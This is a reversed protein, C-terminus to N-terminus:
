LNAARRARFPTIMLAGATGALALVTMALYGYAGVADYLVGSLTTALGVFLGWALASSLTQASSAHQPPSLREILQLSGVFTAAFTLAHLGNIVFILWVPPSFALCTWRVVAAVGGLVLLRVPGVRRRWPEMFWLFGVEVATGVGWLPGFLAPDVGQRAWSLNSFAYFFAHSAQILGASVVALMFVPDRLLDRAGALGDRAAVKEGDEHVPDPPLLLQAFIAVLLAAGIAWVLIVTKPMVTLMLGAASNAVIYAMSGMGRPLGYNFGERAARRLTIVDGLPALCAGLTQAAFWLAFWAWFGQSFAFWLYAAATAVSIFVIPTRRLRFTDAWLALAPATVIRALSPAALIAGIQAGTLGREAFWLGIYPGAVGSGIFLAAYFLGIRLTIPM